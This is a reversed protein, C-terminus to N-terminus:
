NTSLSNDDVVIQKGSAALAMLQDQSVSQGRLDYSYGLSAHRVRHWKFLYFSDRLGQPTAPPFYLDAYARGKKCDGLINRKIPTAEEETYNNGWSTFENVSPLSISYAKYESATLAPFIFAQQGYGFYWKAGDARVFVKLAFQAANNTGHIIINGAKGTQYTEVPLGTVAEAVEDLDYSQVGGGEWLISDQENDLLVYLTVFAPETIEVLGTCTDPPLIITDTDTTDVPPTPPHYAFDDPALQEILECSAILAFAFLIITLKRM